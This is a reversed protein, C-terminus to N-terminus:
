QYELAGANEGEGDLLWDEESSLKTRIENV